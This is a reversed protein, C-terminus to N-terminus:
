LRADPQGVPVQDAKRPQARPECKPSWVDAVRITSGPDYLWRMVAKAVERPPSGHPMGPVEVLEKDASKLAAFMTRIGHPPCAKDSLGLVVKIPTTVLTAFNACDFYPLNARVADREAASASAYVRLPNPWPPPLGQEEGSFVNCFAPVYVYTKVFRGTLATLAIGM